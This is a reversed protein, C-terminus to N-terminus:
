ATAADATDVERGIRVFSYGCEPCRWKRKRGMHLGTSAAMYFTRREGCEPCERELEMRLM